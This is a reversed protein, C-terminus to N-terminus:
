MFMGMGTTINVFTKTKYITRYTQKKNDYWIMSTRRVNGLNSVEYTGRLNPIWDITKWIEEM